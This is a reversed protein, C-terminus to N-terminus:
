TPRAGWLPTEQFPMAPHAADEHPSVRKLSPSFRLLSHTAGLLSHGWPHPLTAEKAEARDAVGDQLLLM